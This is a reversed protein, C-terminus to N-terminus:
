LLSWSKFDKHMAVLGSGDEDTEELLWKTHQLMRAGEISFPVPVIFMQDEIHLNYKKAYAIKDKIYQENFPENFEKKKGFKLIPLTQTFTPSM